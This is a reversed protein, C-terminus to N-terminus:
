KKRNQEVYRSLKPLFSEYEINKIKASLAKVLDLNDKFVNIYMNCYDSVTDRCIQYKISLQLQTINNHLSLHRKIFYLKHPEGKLKGYFELFILTLDIAAVVEAQELTKICRGKNTERWTNEIIRILTTKEKKPKNM